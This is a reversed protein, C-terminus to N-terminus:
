TTYEEILEPYASNSVLEILDTDTMGDLNATLLERTLQEMTKFDMDELSKEVYEEKLTKSDLAM